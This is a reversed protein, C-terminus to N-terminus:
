IHSLYASKFDLCAIQPSASSLSLSKLIFRSTFTVLVYFKILYFCLWFSFLLKCIRMSHCLYGGSVQLREWFNVKGDDLKVKLKWRRPFDHFVFWNLIFGEKHKIIFMTKQGMHLSISLFSCKNQIRFLLLLYQYTKIACTFFSLFCNYFPFFVPLKTKLNIQMPTANCLKHKTKTVPM